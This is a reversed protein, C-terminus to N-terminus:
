NITNSWEHTSSHVLLLIARVNIIIWKSFEAPILESDWDLQLGNLASEPVEWEPGVGLAVFLPSSDSISDESTVARASVVYTRQLVKFLLFNKQFLCNNFVLSVVNSEEHKCPLSGLIIYKRLVIMIRNLFKLKRRFLLSVIKQWNEHVNLKCTFYLCYFISISYKPWNGSLTQCLKFFNEFVTHILLRPQELKYLM